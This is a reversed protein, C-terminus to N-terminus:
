IGLVIRKHYPYFVAVHITAQLAPSRNPKFNYLCFPRLLPQTMVQGTVVLLATRNRKRGGIEFLLFRRSVYSM